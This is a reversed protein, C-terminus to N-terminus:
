IFVEEMHEAIDSAIYISFSIDSFYMFCQGTRMDMKNDISGILQEKLHPHRFEDGKWYLQGEGKEKMTWSVMHLVPM